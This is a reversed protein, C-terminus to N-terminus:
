RRGKVDEYWVVDGKEEYESRKEFADEERKVRESDAGVYGVKDRFCLEELM